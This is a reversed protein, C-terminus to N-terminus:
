TLFDKAVHPAKIKEAVLAGNVRMYLLKPFRKAGGSVVNRRHASDAVAKIFLFVGELFIKKESPTRYRPKRIRTRDNQAFRLIELGILNFKHLKEAGKHLPSRCIGAALM